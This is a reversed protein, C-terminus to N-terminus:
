TGSMQLEYVHGLDFDSILKRKNKVKNVIKLNSLM